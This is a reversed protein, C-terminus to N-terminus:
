GYPLISPLWPSMFCAQAGYSNHVGFISLDLPNNFCIKNCFSSPTTIEREDNANQNNENEVASTTTNLYQKDSLWLISVSFSQFLAM